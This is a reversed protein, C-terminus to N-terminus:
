ISFCLLVYDIRLSISNRFLFFDTQVHNGKGTRFGADLVRKMEMFSVRCKVQSFHLRLACFLLSFVLEGLLVTDEMLASGRSM